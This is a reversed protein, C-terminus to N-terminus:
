TPRKLLLFRPSPSFFTYLGIHPLRRQTAIPITPKELRSYHSTHVPMSRACRLSVGSKVKTHTGPPPMFQTLQANVVKPQTHTHKERPYNLQMLSSGQRNKCQWVNTRTGFEYMWSCYYNYMPEAKPDNGNGRHSGACIAWRVVYRAYIFCYVVYITAIISLTTIVAM